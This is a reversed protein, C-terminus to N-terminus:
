ELALKEAIIYERLKRLRRYYALLMRLQSVPTIDLKSFHEAYDNWDMIGFFQTIFFRLDNIQHPPLDKEIVTREDDFGSIQHKRFYSYVRNYLEESQSFDEKKVIKGMALKIRASLLPLLSMKISGPSHYDLATVRARHISPTVNKLGSFLNVAGIGGHWQGMLRQVADRVAPRGLHGMGYHFSYLQQYLKPIGELDELYIEEGVLKLTEEVAPESILRKAASTSIESTLFSDPEPLYQVPLKEIEFFTRRSAKAGTNFIYISPLALILSRLSIQGNLYSWLESRTVPIVCWRNRRSDCDLWSFLVDKGDNQKFLSLLPGDFAVLDANWTYKPLENSGVKRGPLSILDNM